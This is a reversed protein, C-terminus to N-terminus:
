SGLENKVICTQLILLGYLPQIHTKKEIELTILFRLRYVLTAM